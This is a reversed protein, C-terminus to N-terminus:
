KQEFPCYYATRGGITVKKLEHNKDKPCLMDRHRHAQLYSSPFEKDEIRIKVAHKLASRMENYIAELQKQSLDKVYHRPDVKAQYLIEDSYENGIGAIQKQDMLLAKINKSSSKAMIDMFDKLSMTLADPGLEKIGKIEDVDEVLYIKEFKRVSIFHLVSQNKFIFEVASYKVSTDTSKTFELSGTLAFHFM